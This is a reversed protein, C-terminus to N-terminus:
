VKLRYPIRGFVEGFIDLGDQGLFSMRCAPPLSQRWSLTLGLPAKRREIIKLQQIFLYSDLYNLIDIARISTVRGMANDAHSARRNRKKGADSREHVQYHITVGSSAGSDYKSSTHEADDLHHDLGVLLGFPRSELFLSGFLDFDPLSIAM